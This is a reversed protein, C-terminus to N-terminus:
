NTTQGDSWGVPFMIIFCLDINLGVCGVCVCMM